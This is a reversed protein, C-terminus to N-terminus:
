WMEGFSKKVKMNDFRITVKEASIQCRKFTCIM